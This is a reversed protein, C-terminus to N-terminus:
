ENIKYGGPLKTNNINQILRLAYNILEDNENKIELNKFMEKVKVLEYHTKDSLTINYDYENNVLSKKITKQWPIFNEIEFFLDDAIGDFRICRDDITIFAALKQNSIEDYYINYNKCYERICKIGAEQSCRSSYIVIEYKNTDKLKDITEKIGTVPLDMALDIRSWGNIYSHIVGDFDFLIRKKRKGKLQYPTKDSLTINNSPENNMLANRLIENIFDNIDQDHNEKLQYLKELLDNDINFKKERRM